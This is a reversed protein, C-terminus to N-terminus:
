KKKKENCFPCSSLKGFTWGEQKAMKIADTKTVDSSTIQFVRQCSDCEIEFTIWKIWKSMKDKVTKRRRENKLEGEIREMIVKRINKGCNPCYEFLEFSDGNKYKEYASSDVLRLGDFDVRTGITCYRYKKSCTKM